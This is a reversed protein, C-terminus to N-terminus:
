RGFQVGREKALGVAYDLREDMSKFKDPRQVSSVQSRGTSSPVPRVRNMQTATATRRAPEVWRKTYSTVYEDLLKKDGEEYRRLTASDGTMDIEKKVTRSLWSKFNVRLDDLQDADPKEVGLAESVKEGIYEIQQNGHRQWARAEAQSTQEVHEPVELLADIQEESLSAIKKFVAMGPLNFFAEKIQEAKQSNPDAPTVGALAAIKRDREAVDAELQRTRGAQTNVEDFRHKPVWGASPDVWKSRDEKYTFVKEGSSAGPRSQDGTGQQGSAGAGQQTVATGSAASSGQSGDATGGQQGQQGENETAM